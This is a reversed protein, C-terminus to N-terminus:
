ACLDAIEGRMGLYCGSSWKKEMLVDRHLSRSCLHGKSDPGLVQRYRQSDDITKENCLYGCRM